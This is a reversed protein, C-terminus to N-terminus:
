FPVNQTQSRGSQAVVVGILMIAGGTVLWITIPEALILYGAVVAVVPMLYLFSGAAASPLHRTGYNWLVVALLSNVIALYVIEIWTRLATEFVLASYPQSALVIIPPAVLITGWATVVFSSYHALLPKAAITFSAWCFSAGALFLVGIPNVPNAISATIDPWFLVLAGLLSIGLGQWIRSSLPERLAAWALLAIFIPEVLSIVTGLGAAVRAFGNITLVASGFMSVAAVLLRPWHRRDIRWQCVGFLIPTIVVLLVIERLALANEPALALATTRIFVASSGWILMTVLLAFVARSQNSPMSIPRKLSAVGCIRRDAFRGDNLQISSRVAVDVAFIASLAPENRACLVARRLVRM